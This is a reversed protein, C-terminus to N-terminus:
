VHKVIQCIDSVAHTVSNLLCFLARMQFVTSCITKIRLVYLFFLFTENFIPLFSLPFFFPLPASFVAM